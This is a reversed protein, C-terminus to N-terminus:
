TYKKDREARVAVQQAWAMYIAQDQKGNHMTFSALGSKVREMGRLRLFTWQSQDGGPSSKFDTNKAKGRLPFWIEPKCM